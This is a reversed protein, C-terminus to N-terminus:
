APRSRIGAFLDDKEEPPPHLRSKALVFHEECTANRYDGFMEVLRHYFEIQTEHRAIAELKRDMAEEPIPVVTTIEDDRAAFIRRGRYSSALSEPVAWEYLKVPGEPGARYFAEHVFSTVALHDPHGSVGDRHFTVLVQPRHAEIEESVARVGRDFPIRDLGSDPMGVIRHTRIGLAECAGALERTRRRMLEQRSLEKSVGITGAEGATFILLHVSAGEIAYRALSGGPGYTEDDPHAFVALLKLPNKL